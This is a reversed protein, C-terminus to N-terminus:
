RTGRRAARQGAAGGLLGAVAGGAVVEALRAITGAGLVSLLAAVPLTALFVVGSAVAGIVAGLVPRGTLGAVAGILAGVIAATLVLLATPESVERLHFLVLGGRIAAGAVAGAAAGTGSLRWGHAAPREIAGAQSRRSTM